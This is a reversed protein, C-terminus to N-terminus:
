IKKCNITSGTVSLRGEAAASVCCGTIQGRAAFDLTHCLVGVKVSCQLEQSKFLEGKHCLVQCLLGLFKFLKHYLVQCLLELFCRELGPIFM